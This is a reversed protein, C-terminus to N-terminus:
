IKDDTTVPLQSMRDPVGPERLLRFSAADGGDEKESRRRLSNKQAAVQDRGAYLFTQTVSQRVIFSPDARDVDVLRCCLCLRRVTAPQRGLPPVSREFDRLQAVTLTNTFSEYAVSVRTSVKEAMQM